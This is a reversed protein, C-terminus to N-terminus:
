QKHVHLDVKYKSRFYTLSAKLLINKLFLFAKCFIELFKKIDSTKLLFTMKLTRKLIISTYSVNQSYILSSYILNESFTNNFLM